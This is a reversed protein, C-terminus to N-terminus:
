NFEYLKILLCHILLAFARLLYTHALVHEALSNAFSGESFYLKPYMIKGPFFNGKLNKFFVFNLVDVIHLPYSSFDMNQFHYPM